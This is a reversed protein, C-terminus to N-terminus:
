SLKKSVVNVIDNINKFNIVEEFTFVIKFNKELENILTMHTLSDWGDIEGAADNAKIELNTDQFVLRFVQQIKLFLNEQM